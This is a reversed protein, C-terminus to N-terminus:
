ESRRRHGHIPRQAFQVLHPQWEALSMRADPPVGQAAVWKAFARAGAPFLSSMQGAMAATMQRAKAGTSGGTGPMGAQVGVSHGALHPREPLHLHDGSVLRQRDAPKARKSKRAM